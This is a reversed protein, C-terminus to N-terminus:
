QSSASSFAMTPAGTYTTFFAGSLLEVEDDGRIALGDDGWRVLSRPTLSTGQLKLLAMRELTNSDFSMLYGGQIAFLRHHASDVALDEFATCEGSFLLPLQCTLYGIIAGSAADRVSGDPGYLRGGSHRFHLGSPPVALVFSAVSQIGTTTVQLTELTGGSMAYPQRLSHFTSGGAPEIWRPTVNGFVTSGQIHDTRRTAADFVFIGDDIRLYGDTLSAVIAQPQGPLVALAHAVDDNGYVSTGLPITLDEVLTGLQLRHVVPQTSGVYLASGDDSVALPGPGQAMFTTPAGLTATSPDLFQVLADGSAPNGKNTGSSLYLLNRTASWVLDRTGGPVDVRRASYEGGQTATVVAKLRASYEGGPVIRACDPDFCIVFDMSDEFVGSGLSAPARLSLIYSGSVSEGTVDFKPPQLKGDVILRGTPNRRGVYVGNLPFDRVSFTVPLLQPTTQTSEMELFSPQPESWTAHATPEGTISYEVDVVLPSGQLWSNCASDACVDISVKAHYHGAGLLGPKLFALRV